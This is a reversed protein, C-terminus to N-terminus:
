QIRLTHFYPKLYRPLYDQLMVVIDNNKGKELTNTIVHFFTGEKGFHLDSLYRLSM